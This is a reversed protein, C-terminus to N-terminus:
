LSLNSLSASTGVLAAKILTSRPTCVAAIVVASALRLAAFQKSCLSFFSRGTSVQLSLDNHVDLIARSDLHYMRGKCRQRKIEKEPSMLGRSVSDIM